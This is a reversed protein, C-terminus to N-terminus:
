IDIGNVGDTQRRTLLGEVHGAGDGGEVQKARVGHGAADIVYKDDVQEGLKM